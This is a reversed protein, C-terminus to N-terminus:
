GERSAVFFFGGHVAVHGLRHLDHHVLRERENLIKRCNRIFEPREALDAEARLDELVERAGDIRDGCRDAHVAVEKVIDMKAAELGRQTLLQQIRDDIRLRRRKEGRLM